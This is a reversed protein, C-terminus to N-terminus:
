NMIVRQIFSMLDDLGNNIRDLNEAFNAKYDDVSSYQAIFLIKLVGYVSTTNSVEFTLLEDNRAFYHLIDNFIEKLREICTPRYDLLNQRETQNMIPVIVRKVIGKVRLDRNAKNIDAVASICNKYEVAENDDFLQIHEPAAKVRHHTTMHNSVDIHTTAPNPPNRIKKALTQYTSTIDATFEQLIAKRHAYLTLLHSPQPPAKNPTPMSIAHHAQNIEHQQKGLEQEAKFSAQAISDANQQALINESTSKIEASTFYLYYSFTLTIEDLMAQRNQSIQNVDIPHQEAGPSTDRRLPGCMTDSVPRHPGRNM